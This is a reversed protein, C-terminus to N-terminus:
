IESSGRPDIVTVIQTNDRLFAKFYFLFTKTIKKVEIM